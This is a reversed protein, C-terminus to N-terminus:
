TQRALRLALATMDDARGSREATDLIAAPVESFHKVAASVAAKQLAYLNLPTWAGDSLILLTEGSQLPTHQILFARANGSGLRQKGAGETLIRGEGDRNILYARSDGVCAGVVDSHVVAVALFTSLAGGLLSSDLLKVWSAWTDASQIQDPTAERFHAEFLCLVRKAVQEANGAGDCLAAYPIAGHGVVFADENITRGTQPRSAGYCEIRVHVGSM